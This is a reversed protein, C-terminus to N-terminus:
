YREDGDPSSSPRGGAAGPASAATSVDVEADDDDEDSDTEEAKARVGLGEEEGDADEDDSSGQKALFAALLSGHGGATGGATSGRAAAAPAPRPAAAAAKFKSLDLGLGGGPRKLGLGGTAAAPAASKAVTAPQAPAPAASTIAALKVTADAEMTSGSAVAAAGVGAVAPATATSAAGPTTTLAGVVASPRTGSLLVASLDVVSVEASADGEAASMLAAGTAAADADVVAQLAPTLFSAAGPHAPCRLSGDSAHDGALAARMAGQVYARGEPPQLGALLPKFWGPQAQGLHLCLQGALKCTTATDLWLSSWPQLVLAASAADASPASDSAAAGGALATSDVVLPWRVLSPTLLPVMSLFTGAFLRQQLAAAREAVTTATRDTAGEAAAAGTVSAQALTYCLLQAKLAAVALANLQAQLGRDLLAPPLSSGSGVAATGSGPQRVTWRGRVLARLVAAAAAGLAGQLGLAAAHGEFAAGADTAAGPAAQFAPAAAAAAKTVATAAEFSATLSALLSACVAVCRVAGAAAEAASISSEPQTLRAMDPLATLTALLGQLVLERTADDRDDDAATPALPAALLLPSGGVLASPQRLAQACAAALSPGLAAPLLFRQLAAAATQLLVPRPAGPGVAGRSQAAAGAVADLIAAVAGANSFSGGAPM